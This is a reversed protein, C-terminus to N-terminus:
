GKGTLERISMTSAAAAPQGDRCRWLRIGPMGAVPPNRDLWARLEHKVTWPMPPQGPVELVYVYESRAM